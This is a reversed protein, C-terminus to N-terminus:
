SKGVRLTLNWSEARSQLRALLELGWVRLELLSLGVPSQRSIDRAGRVRVKPM